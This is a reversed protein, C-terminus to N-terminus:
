AQQDGRGHNVIAVVMRWDIDQTNSM